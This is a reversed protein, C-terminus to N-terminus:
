GIDYNTSRINTLRFLPPDFIVSEAGNASAQRDLLFSYLMSPRQPVQCLLDEGERIILTAVRRKEALRCYQDFFLWTM